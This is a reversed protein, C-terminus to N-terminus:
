QLKLGTEKMSEPAEPVVPDPIPDVFLILQYPTKTSDPDESPAVLDLTHSGPIELDVRSVTSHAVEAGNQLITAKLYVQM